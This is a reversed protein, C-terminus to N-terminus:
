QVPAKIFLRVNKSGKQVLSDNKDNEFILLHGKLGPPIEGSNSGERRSCQSNARIVRLFYLVSTSM